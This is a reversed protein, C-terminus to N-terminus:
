KEGWSKVFWSGSPGSSFNNNTLGSEYTISSGGSILMRYATAEKLSAGGSINITGSPAYVIVAGAGGSVTIASSDSSTSLMMLYSGATGSGTAHGGGSVTVTGDNIIVGDNSGYSSALKITGGGSLVINGTVWLTGTLTLIGGGSVTLNGIIKKPGLTAGAWGVSYDGNSVGGAEAEEKWGAIQTDSIPFDVYTPDPQSICSKNNGTGTQCYINGTANTYNVTHAQASGSVTGIHLQNWKSHSNGEILGSAGSSIATGTIVASSDGTIPGNSYVNGNVTGSGSLYIGGQGVQVGYNFSIGTNTSLTLDLQRQYTSVDGM